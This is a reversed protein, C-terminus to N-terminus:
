VARACAALADLRPLLKDRAEPVAYFVCRSVGADEYKKIADPEEPSFFLSVPFPGRGAKAGMENLERIKKSLEDPSMRLPMWEDGYRVVRELTRAGGGGVIVPPHPKQHPKPWAWSKEFRVFEGTYSAEEKTWLEKMAEIRERLAKWRSAYPVGHHEIEERNWGGGIGFLVRGGSLCDVSAVEKALIIPDRQIVLCIGTGVRLTKTALAAATMAVFPDMNRAYEPPLDGGPYPTHKVPMHTHEPFFISEFGRAEVERGLADPTLTDATPFIAVGFKM